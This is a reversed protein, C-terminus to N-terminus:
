QLFGLKKMVYGYAPVVYAPKKLWRLRVRNKTSALHRKGAKRRIYMGKANILFRDKLSSYSKLKAHTAYCSVAQQQSARIFNNEVLAGTRPNSSCVLSEAAFGLRVTGAGTALRRGALAAAAAAWSM